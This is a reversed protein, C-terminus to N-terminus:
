QLKCSHHRSVMCSECAVQQAVENADRWAMSRMLWPVLRLWTDSPPWIALLLPLPVFTVPYTAGCLYLLTAASFCCGPRGAQNAALLFPVAGKSCIFGASQLTFLCCWVCSTRGSVASPWQLAPCGAPLVCPEPCAETKEAVSIWMSPCVM